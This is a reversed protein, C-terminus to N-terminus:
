QFGALCRLAFFLYTYIVYCFSYTCLPAKHISLLSPNSMSFPMSPPILHQPLLFSSTKSSVKLHMSRLMPWHCSKLIIRKNRKNKAWGLPNPKSMFSFGTALCQAQGSHWPRVRRLPVTPLLDFCLCCPKPPLLTSPRPNLLARVQHRDLIRQHCRKYLMSTEASRARPGTEHMHVRENRIPQADHQVNWGISTPTPYPLKKNRLLFSTSHSHNTSRGGLLVESTKGFLSPFPTIRDEVGSQKASVTIM